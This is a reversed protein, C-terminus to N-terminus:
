DSAFSHIRLKKIIELIDMESNLKKQADKYLFEERKQRM